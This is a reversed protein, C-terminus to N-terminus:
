VCRREGVRSAPAKGRFIGGGFPLMCTKVATQLCFVVAAAMHKRRAAAPKRIRLKYDVIVTTPLYACGM